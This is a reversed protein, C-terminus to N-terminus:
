IYSPLAIQLQRFTRMHETFHSIKAVIAAFPAPTEASSLPVKPTRELAGPSRKSICRHRVDEKLGAPWQLFVRLKQVAEPPLL